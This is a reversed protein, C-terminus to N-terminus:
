SWRGTRPSVLSGIYTTVHFVEEEDFLRLSCKQQNYFALDKGIHCLIEFSKAKIDYYALRRSEDLSLLLKGHHMALPLAYIVPFLLILSCTPVWTHNKTDKSIWLDYQTMDQSCSVLCPYGGLDEIATNCHSTNSPLDIVRFKEDSLSFCLFDKQSSSHLCNAIRFYIAEGVTVPTCNAIPYLPDEVTARWSTDDGLTFVEFGISCTREAFDYSRYFHRVVKYAPISSVFGFGAMCSHKGPNWVLADHSGKPLVVVERTIPNCVLVQTETPLLLLGNCHQPRFLTTQSHPLRKGCLFKATRRSSREDYSYIELQNGDRMALIVLQPSEKQRDLCSAGFSPDSILAKWSKCVLKFRLLSRVPLRMLIEVAIFYDSLGCGESSVSSHEEHKPKKKGEIENIYLSKRERVTKMVDEFANRGFELSIGKRKRKTLLSPRTVCWDSCSRAHSCHNCYAEAM